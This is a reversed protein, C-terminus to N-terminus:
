KKKAGFKRNYIKIADKRCGAIIKEGKIFFPQMKKEPEILAGKLHEGDGMQNGRNGYRVRAYPGASHGGMSMAAIMNLMWLNSKM